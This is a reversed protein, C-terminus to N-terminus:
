KLPAHRMQLLNLAARVGAAVDVIKGSAMVDEVADIIAIEDYGQANNSTIVNMLVADILRERESNTFEKARMETILGYEGLLQDRIDAFDTNELSLELDELEARHKWLRGIYGQTRLM